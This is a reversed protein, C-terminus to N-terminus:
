GLSTSAPTASPAKLQVSSSTEDYPRAARDDNSPRARGLLALYHQELRMLVRRWDHARARELAREVRRDREGDFLVEIAQAWARPSESDVGVGCDGEILEGLGAARQVAVPTGSSMAELVSLGFTEQDGTHVFGDVNALLSSLRAPDGQWPLLRVQPGQPPMPGAGAALLLYRPGLLAVAEALTQLKKEAAFRGLYLLVRKKEPLGLQRRALPDRHEPGFADSDVGLPQRSVHALGLARLENVMWHSPALVLDFGRYLKALYAGAATHAPGSAIRLRMLEAFRAALAMLNSHCFAVTPVGRREAADLAAWALRYPDGSEILDPELREILAALARRRIPVRYGGSGPLPLGGCDVVGSQGRGPVLVTHRWDSREALWRQKSLLYRRNGGSQPSWFMTCDLLHIPMPPAPLCRVWRAAAPV